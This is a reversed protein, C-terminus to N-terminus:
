LFVLEITDSISFLISYSDDKILIYVSESSREAKSERITNITCFSMVSVVLPHLFPKCMDTVNETPYYQDYVTQVDPIGNKIFAIVEDYETM